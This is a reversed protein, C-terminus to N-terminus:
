VWPIKTGGFYARAHGEDILQQNVYYVPPDLAPEPNRRSIPPSFAEVNALVRGFKGKDKSCKLVIDRGKLLSKLREKSALGL